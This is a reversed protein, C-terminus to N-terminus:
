LWLNRAADGGPEAKDGVYDVSVCNLMERVAEDEGRM